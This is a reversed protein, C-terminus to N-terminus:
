ATKTAGMIGLGVPPKTPVVKTTTFEASAPLQEFEPATRERGHLLILMGLDVHIAAPVDRACEPFVAEVIFFAGGEDLARHCNTRILVAADKGDHTIRSPVFADGPQFAPWSTSVL